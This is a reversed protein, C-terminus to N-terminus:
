SRRNEGATRGGPRRQRDPRIGGRAQGLSQRDATPGFCRQNAPRLRIALLRFDARGNQSNALRADKLSFRGRQWKQTGGLYVHELTSKYAQDYADYQIQFNGWGDDWYEVEVEVDMRPAWKFSKDIAFYAHGSEATMRRLSRCEAGNVEDPAMAGDADYNLQDLGDVRNQRGLRVSRQPLLLNALDAALAANDPEAALQRELSTRAKERAAQAAVAQGREAFHRALAAQVRGDGAAREALGELVGDLAASETVIRAQGASTWATWFSRSRGHRRQRCRCARTCCLAKAQSVSVEALEGSNLSQRIRAAALTQQDNTM